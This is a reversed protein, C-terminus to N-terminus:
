AAQWFGTSEVRTAGLQTGCRPCHAASHAYLDQGCGCVAPGLDLIATKTTTSM